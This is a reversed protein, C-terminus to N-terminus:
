RSVQTCPRGDITCDLPTNRVGLGEVEFHVTVFGGNSITRTSDVPTFIAKLGTRAMVAGDVDRVTLDLLPLVVVVTWDTSPATSPNAIIVTVRYSTLNLDETRTSATFQPGTAAASPASTAPAPSAGASPSTASVVAARPSREAPAAPVTAQASGEVGGGTRPPKAPHPATAKGVLLAIMALLLLIAAAAAVAQSRRDASWDRATAVRQWSRRVLASFAL